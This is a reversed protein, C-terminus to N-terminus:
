FNKMIEWIDDESEFPWNAPNFGIRTEAHGLKWQDTLWDINRGPHERAFDIYERGFLPAGRKNVGSRVTIDSVEGLQSPHADTSKVLFSAPTVPLNMPLLEEASVFRSAKDRIDDIGQSSFAAPHHRYLAYVAHWIHRFITEAAFRYVHDAHGDALTFADRFRDRVPDHFQKGDIEVIIRESLPTVMLFDARFCGRRTEFNFQPEFRAGPQLLRRLVTHFLLEPESEATSAAEIYRCAFEESNFQAM